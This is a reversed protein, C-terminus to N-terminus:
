RGFPGAHERTRTANRRVWEEADVGEMLDQKLPGTQDKERANAFM